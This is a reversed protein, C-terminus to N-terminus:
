PWIWDFAMLCSAYLMLALTAPNQSMGVNGHEFSEATSGMGNTAMTAMLPAAIAGLAALNRVPKTRTLKRM